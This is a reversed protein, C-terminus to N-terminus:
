AYGNERGWRLWAATNLEPHGRASEPVPNAGTLTRLAPYWWGGNDRLDRFILPLVPEGLAIIQSYAPHGTIARPSSHGATGSKWEWVLQQFRQALAPDVSAAEIVGYWAAGPQEMYSEKREERLDPSVQVDNITATQQSDM